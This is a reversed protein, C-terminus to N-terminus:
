KGLSRAFCPPVKCKTERINSRCSFPLMIMAVLLFFQLSYTMISPIYCHESTPTNMLMMMVRVRAMVAMVTM